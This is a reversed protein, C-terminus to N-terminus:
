KAARSEMMLKVRKSDAVTIGNLTTRIWRDTPEFKWLQRAM